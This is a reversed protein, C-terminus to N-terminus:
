SAIMATVAVVTTDSEAHPLEPLSFLAFGLVDALEALGEGVEGLGGGAGGMPWSSISPKTLDTDPLVIWSVWRSRLPAVTSKM